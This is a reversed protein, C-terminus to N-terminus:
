KRFNRKLDTKFQKEAKEGANFEIFERKPRKIGGSIDGDNHLKGYKPM